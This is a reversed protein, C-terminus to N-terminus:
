RTKLIGNAIKLTEEKSLNTNMFIIYNETTWILNQRGAKLTYRAEYGNVIEISDEELNENDVNMTGGKGMVQVIVLRGNPDLFRYSIMSRSYSLQILELGEPIYTPYYTGIPLIEVMASGNSIPTAEEQLYYTVYKPNSEMVLKTVWNRASAVKPIAFFLVILVLLIWLAAKSFSLYLKQFLPVPASPKTEAEIMKRVRQNFEFSPYYADKEAEELYQQGMTEAAQLAAEKLLRDFDDPKHTDRKM